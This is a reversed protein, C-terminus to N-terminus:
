RRYPTGFPLLVVNSREKTYVIGSDRLNGAAVFIGVMEGFAPQHGAMPGWRGDYFWDRGIKDVDGGESLDRGYWFQIAASCYWRGGINLCMGLTYELDGTGFPVDPWRGPGVRKDFDVM